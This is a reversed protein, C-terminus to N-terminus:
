KVVACIYLAEYSGRSSACVPSATALVTRVHPGWLPAERPVPAARSGQQFMWWGSPFPSELNSIESKLNSVPMIAEEDSDPLPRDSIHSKLHTPANSIQSKPDSIESKLNSIPSNM